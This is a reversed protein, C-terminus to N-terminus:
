HEPNLYGFVSFEVNREGVGAKAWRWWNKVYERVRLWTVRQEYLQSLKEFMRKITTKSLGLTNKKNVSFRYGLCEFGKETKGIYTKPYSLTLCLRDLEKYLAKLADRLHHRTKAFIVIDDMYRVYKIRTDARMREDLPSLVLNGLLPSLCGGKAIGQTVHEYTGDVIEVRECYQKIIREARDDLAYTKLQEFLVQHNITKYFDAIDTKIIFPFEGQYEQIARVAGKLGGNGKISYVGDWNIRSMLHSELTRTLTKLVLCDEADWLNIRNGSVNVVKSPSLHYTGSVVKM